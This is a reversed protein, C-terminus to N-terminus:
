RGRRDEGLGTAVWGLVALLIAPVACTALSGADLVPVVIGPLGRPVEGVIPLGWSPQTIHIGWSVLTMVVTVLLPRPIWATYRFTGFTLLIVISVIGIILAAPQTMGINSFTKILQPILYPDPPGTSYGLLPELQSMGILVISGMTFGELVPPGVFTVALGLRLAGMLFSFIGTLLTTTFVLQLYAPLRQDSPLGVVAPFLSSTLLLANVAVPGLSMERSTGMLTYIAIPVLCSYLGYIPPLSALTADTRALPDVFSFLSTPTFDSTSRQNCVFRIRLLVLVSVGGVALLKEPEARTAERPIVRQERPERRTQKVERERLSYDLKARATAALRLSELSALELAALLFVIALAAGEEEEGRLSPMTTLLM